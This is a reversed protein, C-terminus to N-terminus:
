RKQTPPTFPGTEPATCAEVMTREGAVKAAIRNLMTTFSAQQETTPM